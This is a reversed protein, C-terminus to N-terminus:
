VGAWKAQCTKNLRQPHQWKLCQCNLPQCTKIALYQPAKHSMKPEWCAATSARNKRDGWQFYAVPTQPSFLVFLQRTTIPSTSNLLVLPNLSIFYADSFHAKKVVEDTRFNVQPTFHSIKLLVDHQFTFLDASSRLLRSRRVTKWCSINKSIKDKFSFFNNTLSLRVTCSDTHEPKRVHLFIRHMEYLSSAMHSMLSM